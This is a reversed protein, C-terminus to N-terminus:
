VAAQFSAGEPKLWFFVVLSPPRTGNGPLEEQPDSLGVRSSSPPQGEDGEERVRSSGREKEGSESSGDLGEGQRQNLFGRAM